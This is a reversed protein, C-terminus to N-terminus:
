APRAQVNALALWHKVGAEDVLGVRPGYDGDGVWIVSGVTGVPVKRGKVVEVRQGYVIEGAALSRAVAAQYADRREPDCEHPVRTWCAFLWREYGAETTSHRADLLRGKATRVIYAGCATCTGLDGGDSHNVGGCRISHPVHADNHRTFRAATTM